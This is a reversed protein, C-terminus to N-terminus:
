NKNLRLGRRMEIPTTLTHHSAKLASGLGGHTTSYKMILFNLDIRSMTLKQIFVQTDLRFSTLALKEIMVRVSQLAMREINHM